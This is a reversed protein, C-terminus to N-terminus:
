KELDSTHGGCGAFYCGNRDSKLIYILSIITAIVPCLAFRKQAFNQNVQADDEAVCVWGGGL